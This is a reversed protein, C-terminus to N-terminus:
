QALDLLEQKQSNSRIVRTIMDYLLRFLLNDLDILLDLSQQPHLFGQFGQGPGAGATSRHGLTRHNVLGVIKVANNVIRNAALDGM